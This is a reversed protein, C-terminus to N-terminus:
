ALKLAPTVNLTDGNALTRSASLAMYVYLSGATGSAASVIAFYTVPGISGGSATYSKQAGVLRYDGSDLALTPFDTGNCAWTLRAYGSGSPEGTLTALTDTDVPTDNYLAGYVNTPRTGARWTADLMLQEGSDALNNLLWGAALLRDHAPDGPLPGRRDDTDGMGPVWILRGEASHQALHAAFVSRGAKAANRAALEHAPVPITATTM